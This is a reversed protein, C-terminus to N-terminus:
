ANHIVLPLMNTPPTSIPSLVTVMDHIHMNMYLVYLVDVLNLYVHDAIHMDCLSVNDLMYLICSAAGYIYIIYMLNVQSKRLILQMYKNM